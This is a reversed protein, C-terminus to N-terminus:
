LINQSVRGKMMNNKLISYMMFVNFSAVYLQVFLKWLEAVNRQINRYLALLIHIGLIGLERRELLLVSPTEAISDKFYYHSGAINQQM